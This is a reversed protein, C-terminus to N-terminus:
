ELRKVETKPPDPDLKRETYTLQINKDLVVKNGPSLSAKYGFILHRGAYNDSDFSISKEEMSSSLPFTESTILMKDVWFGCWCYLTIQNGTGVLSKAKVTITYTKGSQIYYGTDQHIINEYHEKAKSKSVRPPWLPQAMQSNWKEYDRTLLKVVDPHKASLDHSESIDLAIDFLWTKHGNNVLKWNGHRVAYPDSMHWFLIEHPTKKNQGTLYPILNVGDIKRDQPLKAGAAVAVTPLIDLSIVPHDYTVGSPLRSPWQVIFPVRIGGEFFSGKGSRLPSNISGEYRSNGEGWGGNDNLFFVITEDEIGYTQLHQLVKGIGDDMAALMGAYTRRTENAIHKFSDQYRKPSQMPNHVANYSLLLFFPEKRHRKIFSTAERTFADTLYEKENVPVTGRLIPNFSDLAPDLYNHEGHLFGFFEQFGRKLPHRNPTLGMHWKGVLGTVYGKSKLMDAITIETPPLGVNDRTGRPPPGPNYYHGFRQQYRGTMLGARSPSCGPATVYGNTFRVGKQAISDINPTSIDKCGYCGIDAYGMDDSIIIIINPKAQKQRCTPLQHGGLAVAGISMGAIKLFERRKMDM